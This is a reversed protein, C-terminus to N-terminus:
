FIVFVYIIIKLKITLEGDITYSSNPFNVTYM